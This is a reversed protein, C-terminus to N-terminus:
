KQDQTTRRHAAIVRALPLTHAATVALEFETAGSFLVRIQGRVHDGSQGFSIRDDRVIEAPALMQCLTDITDRREALRLADAHARTRCRELTTEYDPLLRRTIDTAIATAPREAAVTIADGGESTGLHRSFEGYSASIQLRGHDSHRHSDDGHTITLIQQDPGYLVVHARIMYGREAIWGPGLAAAIQRALDLLDM